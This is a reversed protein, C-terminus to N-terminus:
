TMGKWTVATRDCHQYTAANRGHATRAQSDHSDAAQWAQSNSLKDAIVSGHWTSDPNQIVKISMDNGKM